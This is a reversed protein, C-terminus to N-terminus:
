HLDLYLVGGKSYKLGSMGSYLYNNVISLMLSFVFSIELRQCCKSRRLTLPMFACTGWAATESLIECVIEVSWLWFFHLSINTLCEGKKIVTQDAM